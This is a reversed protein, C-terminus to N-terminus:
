ITLVFNSTDYELLEQLSLLQHRAFGVTCNFLFLVPLTLDFISSSEIGPQEDPVFLRFDHKYQTCVTIIQLWCCLRLFGKWLHTKTVFQIWRSREPLSWDEGSGLLDSSGWHSIYIVQMTKFSAQEKFFTEVGCTQASFGLNHAAPLCFQQLKSIADCKIETSM